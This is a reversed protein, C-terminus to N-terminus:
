KSTKWPIIGSKLSQGYTWFLLPLGFRSVSHILTGIAKGAGYSDTAGTFIPLLGVIAKYLAPLQAVAGIAMLLSLGIFVNGLTQKKM